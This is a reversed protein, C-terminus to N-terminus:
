TVEFFIQNKSINYILVINKHPHIKLIIRAFIASNRYM